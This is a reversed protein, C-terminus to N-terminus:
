KKEKALAKDIIEGIKKYGGTRPTVRKIKKLTDTLKRRLTRNERYAEGLQDHAAQNIEEAEKLGTRLERNQMNVAEIMRNTVAMTERDGRAQKLLLECCESVNIEGEALPDIMIAHLESLFRGVHKRHEGLEAEATALRDCKLMFQEAGAGIAERAQVLEARLADRQMEMDTCFAQLKGLVESPPRTFNADMLAFTEDGEGSRKKAKEAEAQLRKITSIDDCAAHEIADRESKAQELEAQLRLIPRVLDGFIDDDKSGLAEHARRIVDNAWRIEGRKKPEDERYQEITTILPLFASALIAKEKGWLQWNKSSGYSPHLQSMVNDVLEKMNISPTPIARRQWLRIAEVAIGKLNQRYEGNGIAYVREYGRLAEEACDLVGEPLLDGSKWAEVPAFAAETALAQRHLAVELPDGVFQDVPESERRLAARWGHRMYDKVENDTIKQENCYQEFQEESGVSAPQGRDILTPDKCDIWTCLLHKDENVTLTDNGCAPCKTYIRIGPTENLRHVKSLVKVVEAAIERNLVSILEKSTDSLPAIGVALGYIALRTHNPCDWRGNDDRWELSGDPEKSLRLPYNVAEPKDPKRTDWAILAAIVTQMEEKDFCYLQDGNVGKPYRDILAHVSATFASPDLNVLEELTEEAERAKRKSVYRAEAVYGLIELIKQKATELKNM